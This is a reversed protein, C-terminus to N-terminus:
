PRGDQRPVPQAPPFDPVEPFEPFDTLVRTSPLSERDVIVGDKMVTVIRRYNRVDALPDGDLVLLDAKKGAEITGLEDGKGYAEAVYRTASLLAEMPAMGQEAVAAFWVFHSEGLDFPYDVPAREVSHRVIPHGLARRASLMGDTTLLMRAGAKIMRRGNEHVPEGFLLRERESWNELAYALYNETWILAAAPLRRDVITSLLRDPIPERGTVNPHTLLDAGAEIEMRLSEVSMTHAQATVGALHAEEVIARQAAESFTILPVDHMCAAYKVFDAGSRELYDRVAQRVGEPTLWTMELGLGQDFRREIRDITTQGLLNGRSVAEWSLPGPYGIIQGAVFMRSGITAGRNIRDRVDVLAELPGYTDFVTTVGAKLTVQAAEEVIEHYRDEYRLLIDPVVAFLHVNADMLGPIVFRGVADVTETGEPLPVSSPQVARIRDGDVLVTTDRAPPRGTGDIVTANVVAKM